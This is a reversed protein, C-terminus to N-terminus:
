PLEKVEVKRFKVVGGSSNQQLAFHGRTFRHKPDTWQVSRKGNVLITIGAGKCIVEMTFWEDPKHPAEQVVIQKYTVEERMDKERADPYLSGTKVPDGQTAIQAEYGRPFDPGFRTRFYLGSNAREDIKCEVRVHFDKYDDRETFLHSRGRSGVIVGDEVRWSGKGKPYVKWGELNKGNFLSKFAKQDPVIEEKGSNAERDGPRKAAVLLPPEDVNSIAVPNQRAGGGILGEVRRPVERRVYASLSDWTVEKEATAAKGRLGELVFHFFLGHKLKATEFARQGAKCSFLVGVGSPITVSGPDISRTTSEAKLENRCADILVLKTGAGCRGLAGLVDNLNVLTRSAGTRYSVGVLDADSPCFYSFTKAEGRGDPDEVQLQVGHGALAILITDGRRKGAVLAALAAKVNAATPADKAAKKGRTTTLVRVSTNGASPKRLIEALGEVDNETYSLRPLSAHDYETVGILLAYKKGEAPRARVGAPLWLQFALAVVALPWSRM